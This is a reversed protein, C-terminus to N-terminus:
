FQVESNFERFSYRENQNQATKVEWLFGTVNDQICAWNTAELPLKEGTASIKTFSFGAHGDQDDNNFFDRGFEANQRPYSAIQCSDVNFAGDTCFTIGTDNLKAQTSKDVCKKNEMVNPLECGNKVNINVTDIATANQNDTVTLKFVLAEAKKSSIFFPAISKPNQLVVKGGKTQLWQYTKITGDRDFSQSASLTVRTSFSVNQDIGANAIPKQNTQAQVGFAVLWGTFILMKNM